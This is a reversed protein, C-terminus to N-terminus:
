GPLLGESSFNFSFEDDDPNKISLVTQLMVEFLERNALKTSEWDEPPVWGDSATNLLGALNNRLDHAAEYYKYEKQHVALEEPTSAPYPCSGM